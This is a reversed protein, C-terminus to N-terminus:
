LLSGEQAARRVTIVARPSEEAACYRKGATVDTVQADDSWVIKSLADKAARVLKDLDPKKTHPVARWVKSKTLLAKPRPLYFYVCLNVPGQGIFFGQQEARQLEISAGEAIIQQWGKTKANAGTTVARPKGGGKPTIVFSRTSGKPIPVGIVVFRLESTM